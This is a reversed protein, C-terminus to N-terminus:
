KNYFNFVTEADKRNLVSMLSNISANKITEFSGFFDILRKTKAEGIGYAQMLSIQSQEKARAKRHFTIAFRHAEDRLKQLFQLRKDKPDLQYVGSAAYIVDRAAGKARHAKADLKEKALAVVDLHVGANSLLSQALMRLTEGGDILWLDPPPDQEFENIRRQLMEKMQHYEDKAQLHYHRYGNKVWGNEAYLIKSGVRASGTLHSNDFAEIRSPEADLGLLDQIATATDNHPGAPNVTHELIEEANRRALEILRRKEGKCPHLILINKGFRERLMTQLTETEELLHATLITKATLPTDTAYFELIAQRYLTEFAEEAGEVLTHTSAVVKGRRMFLRVLVSRNGASALAFIDLDLPKAVDAIGKTEIHAIATTRDRLKAAEEFRLTQSLEAMKEKLRKVIQTRNHLLDVAEQVTRGYAAQTIKGECPAPCKGIQYFLCAKNGNACSKKQVLPLLDYLSQLLSRAGSPFPGFYKIHKKDIVKRTIEFRPFAEEFDIYIYPYTKDDRLLINYKPKLQKILSNELVLADTEHDTLLYRLTQTERIMQYIRSSLNPAAQIGEQVKFYSKVRKKLSKAKGVYLLRDNADYFQYVGPTDPLGQLTELLTTTM